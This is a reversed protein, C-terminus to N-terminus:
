DYPSSLCIRAMQSGGGLSLMQPPGFGSDRVAKLAVGSAHTLRVLELAGLARAEKIGGGLRCLYNAPRGGGHRILFLRIIGIQGRLGVHLGADASAPIPEPPRTISPWSPRATQLTLRCRRRVRSPAQSGGLADRGRAENARARSCDSAPHRGRWVTPAIRQRRRDDLLASTATKPRAHM